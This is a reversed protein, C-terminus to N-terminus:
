NENEEKTIDPYAKRQKSIGPTQGMDLVRQIEEKELKQKEKKGFWNKFLKKGSTM